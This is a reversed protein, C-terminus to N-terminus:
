GFLGARLDLAIVQAAQQILELDSRRAHNQLRASHGHHDRGMPLSQHADFAAQNTFVESVLFRGSVRDSPVVEFSICGAEAHTAAIHAPLAAAVDALRDAPVDIHGKLSVKQM